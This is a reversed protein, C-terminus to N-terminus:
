SKAADSGLISAKIKSHFAAGERQEIVHQHVAGYMVIVSQGATTM